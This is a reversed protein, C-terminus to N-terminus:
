QPEQKLVNASVWYLRYNIRVEYLTSSETRARQLVEGNTVAPIDACSGLILNRPYQGECAFITDSVFEVSRGAVSNDYRPVAPPTAVINDNLTWFNLTGGQSLLHTFAGEQALVEFPANSDAEYLWLKDNPSPTDQNLGFVQSFPKLYVTGPPPPTPSVIPPPPNQASNQVIVLPNGVRDIRTQLTYFCGSAYEVKGTVLLNNIANPVLGIEIEVPRATSFEGQQTVTGAESSITIMRGRGLTVSIVQSPLNTPSLVPDVWLPEPTAPSPCGATPSPSPTLTPVTTVSPPPVTNTPTPTDTPQLTATPVLAVATPTRTVGPANLRGFLSVLLPLALILIVVLALAALRAFRESM